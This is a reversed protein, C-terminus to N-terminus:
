MVYCFGLMATAQESGWVCCTYLMHTDTAHQAWSPGPAVDSFLFRFAPLHAPRCAPLMPPMLPSFLTHMVWQFVSPWNSVHPWLSNIQWVTYPTLPEGDVEAATIEKGVLMERMRGRSAGQGLYSSGASAHPTISHWSKSPIIHALGTTRGDSIHYWFYATLQFQKLM